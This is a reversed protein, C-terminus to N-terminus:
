LSIHPMWRVFARDHRSRIAQIQAWASKPPLIVAASTFYKRLQGSMATMNAPEHTRQAPFVCQVM